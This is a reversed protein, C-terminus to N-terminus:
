FEQQKKQRYIQPSLGTSAKFAYSFHDPSNFGASWGVSAIADETSKLLWAAHNIRFNLLYQYPSVGTMQKFIRNFHFPSMHSVLALEEMTINSGFNSQLYERTKEIVPLYNKKHKDSIFSTKVSQEQSFLQEILDLIMAELELGAPHPFSLHKRLRYITHEAEISSHLLLSHCDNNKFFGNLANLYIDKIRAYFDPSLSIIFCQDPQAHYHKVRHTFGPKNLLFRGNFCELGERFISFLFSGSNIYCISFKDQYEVGSLGAEMCHCVFNKIQLAESSYLTQIAADM